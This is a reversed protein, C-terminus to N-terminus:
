DDRRAWPVTLREVGAVLQYSVLGLLAMLILSAFVLATNLTNSAQLQLYGLGSDSAIYEGVIAGIVVLTTAVRLGAFINPLAAPLQVTRLVKARSAGMSRVLEICVPRTGRLGVVTNVLVPFFAMFFAVLVRSLVDHGFWIVFVPALAVKPVNQFSVIAPSLVREVTRFYFMSIGLAAGVVAALGFGLAVEVLTSGTDGLLVQWDAVGTQWVEAPTPLVYSPVHFVVAVLEWLAVMGALVGVYIAPNSGVLRRGLRALSGGAPRSDDAWAFDTNAPAQTM